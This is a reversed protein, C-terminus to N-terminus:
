KGQPGRLARGGGAVETVVSLADVVVHDWVSGTRELLVESARRQCEHEWEDQPNARRWGERSADAEYGCMRHESAIWAQEQSEHRLWLGFMVFWVVSLVVGLRKCGGMVVRREETV